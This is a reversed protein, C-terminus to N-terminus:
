LEISRAEKVRVPAGLTASEYVAEALRTSEFGDAISPFPSRDALVDTAFDRLETAYGMRDGRTVSHPLRVYSGQPGDLLGVAWRHQDLYTLDDFGSVRV